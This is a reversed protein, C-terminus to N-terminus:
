EVTRDGPRLASQVEPRRLLCQCVQAIGHVLRTLKPRNTGFVIKRERRRHHKAHPEVAAQDVYSSGRVQLKCGRPRGNETRPIHEDRVRLVQKSAPDRESECESPCCLYRGFQPYRQSPPCRVSFNFHSNFLSVPRKPRCCVSIVMHM